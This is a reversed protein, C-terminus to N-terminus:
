ANDDDEDAHQEEHEVEETHNPTVTNQGSRPNQENETQNCVNNAVFIEQVILWPSLFYFPRRKM